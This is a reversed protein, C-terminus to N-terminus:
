HLPCRCGSLSQHVQRPIRATFLPFVCTHSVVQTDCDDCQRGDCRFLSVAMVYTGYDNAVEVAAKMEDLTMQTTHLPDYTSSVSGGAMIKLQTAGNRLNNRSAKLVEAEGDCIHAFGNDQLVNTAGPQDFCCGTDGHGGTQSIMAGCPFIRPGMLRGKRVAKAVGLVNGGADRCSTFGQQLYELLDNACMAGMAMQDYEERGEMMGEQIAIHSHMDILGPMLTKGECDVKVLKVDQPVPVLLGVKRILNKHVLVEFPETLTDSTGDFIRANIFLVFQATPEEAFQVPATDSWSSEVPCYEPM